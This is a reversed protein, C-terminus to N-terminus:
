SRRLRPVVALANDWGIAQLEAASLGLEGLTGASEALPRFPHDSGFLIQSMPVLSTLAALAPRYGSIAIDYYLRQLEHEVGHPVRDTLDRAAYLSIRRAMAPLTGGAHCLIFRIDQFRALTGAFLMSVITRATDHPVELMPTAIGPMLTQCCAPATPHIFITAKRRNLEEFVPEYRPDGLWRDDYSSLVGIGDAGLVDLAHAIESLSGEVDPLPIAAFFGFRGPYKQMLEVSYENFRRATRRAAEIDGFWLGPTTLSLISITVNHADMAELSREPTWDLWARTIDGGRSGAIRNRYEALYFPPIPHHHVDILKPASSGAM